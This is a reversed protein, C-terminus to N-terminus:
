RLGGLERVLRFSLNLDFEVHERYWRAASRAMGPPDFWSGGRVVRLRGDGECVPEHAARPIGAYGKGTWHDLVWEQMNGHMEHLGWHNAPLSGITVPRSIGCFYFGRTCHLGGACNVESRHIKDGFAFATETGARAAYEWEAETPLRWTHGTIESLWQAFAQADHFCVNFVPFEPHKWSYPRPRHYGTAEIFHTYAALTVNHRMMAFDRHVTVKHQPGELEKRAFEKLPSGMFFAGKPIVAMDLAFAVDDFAVQESFHAQLGHRAAALRQDRVAAPEVAEAQAWETIQMSVGTAM